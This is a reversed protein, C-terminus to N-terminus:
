NTKEYVYSEDHKKLQIGLYYIYGNINKKYFRKGMETGFKSLTMCYEHGNKAWDSYEKYLDSSREKAKDNVKTCDDLFSTLIDMEKRYVENAKAIKDPIVLGEKQWKLCGKVAWGLIQPLEEELKETLHKDAKDGEFKVEFPILRIRRWIGYDSGRVNIKYNTAIWLKFRPVFEFEAGYLFRATTVDGSVLQKVLGENFRCGENPENTRVFRAGNMRAIESSATNNFGNNKALISEVQSNLSYDGLMKYLIDLFVSKGNAGDGYCQFFCQEKTDGTLTYGVITQVYDVMSQDNNFVELLFQKWRVPENFMDCSINTNKSMLKTKDHPMLIGKKLDVIGNLCNLLYNDKDFDANITPTSGLHMAEKLMAEKGNNSSLRKINQTLSKVLEKDLEKAAEIKMETILTDVQTKIIQKTDKLWTKNDFYMWCKNDFNYRYNPGFRDVFRQANGTDDLSYRNIYNVQGSNIDYREVSSNYNRTYVDKCNNIAQYLTMEGYTQAGRKEDWKVRYLKSNRFIRDMQEYNKSCWFALLSCFSLDAESQSPYFGEWQGYYLCSFRNGNSSQMAKTLVEEDTLLTLNNANDNKVYLYAAQYSVKDMKQAQEKLEKKILYKKHLYELENSKDSIVNRETGQYINGTLAFFRGSDYMEINDRRRQGYPLYGKVIIHIGEGSQSIETYSKLMTIFEDLLEKNDISHDIDVGVYGDGLMFGLGRCKYTSQNELCEEFTSWTDKDNSRAPFGNYGCIPIKTLKGKDNLKTKWLVWRREAKMEEPINNYNTFIKEEEAM